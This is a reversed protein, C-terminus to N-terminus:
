SSTESASEFPAPAEVLYESLSAMVELATMARVRDAATAADIGSRAEMAARMFAACDRARQRPEVQLWTRGTIAEVRELEGLTVNEEDIVLEDVTIRWRVETKLQVARLGVAQVLAPLEADYRGLAVDKALQSNESAVGQHEM